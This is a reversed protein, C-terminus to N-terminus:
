APKTKPIPVTEELIAKLGEPNKINLDRQPFAIEINAKRLAADLAM